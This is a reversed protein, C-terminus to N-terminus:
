RRILLRFEHLFKGPQRLVAGPLTRV